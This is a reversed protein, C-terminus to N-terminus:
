NHLFINRRYFLSGSATVTDFYWIDADKVAKMEGAETKDSFLTDLFSSESNSVLETVLWYSLGM